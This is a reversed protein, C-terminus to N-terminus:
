FQLMYVIFYQYQYMTILAPTILQKLRCTETKNHKTTVFHILQLQLYIILVLSCM